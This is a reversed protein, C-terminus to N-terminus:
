PSKERPGDRDPTTLMRRWPCCALFRADHAGHVLWDALIGSRPRPGLWPRLLVDIVQQVRRKRIRKRGAIRDGSQGRRRRNASWRAVLALLLGILVVHALVSDIV